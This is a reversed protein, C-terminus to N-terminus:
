CQLSGVGCWGSMVNALETGDLPFYKLKEDNDNDNARSVLLHNGNLHHGAPLKEQSASSTLGLLDPLDFM